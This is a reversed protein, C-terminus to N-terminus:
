GWRCKISSFNINQMIKEAPTTGSKSNKADKVSKHFDSMENARVPEIRFNDCGAVFVSSNNENRTAAPHTCFICTM